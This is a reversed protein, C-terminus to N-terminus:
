RRRQRKMAMLAAAPFLALSAPEPIPVQPAGGPLSWMWNGGTLALDGGDVLGDNNFDCNGWGTTSVMWNGGMLALDGGNVSHDGNADGHTYGLFVLEYVAGGGGGGGFAASSPPLGYTINSTFSSFNGTFYVANPDTSAIVAFVDGEKPRYDNLVQVDLVGGLTSAATTHILSCGDDALEVGVTTSRGSGTNLTLGGVQVFADRGVKLVGTSSSSSALVIAGTATLTGGALNATGKAGTANGLILRNAVTLQGGSSIALEGTSGATSAVYLTGAEQFRYGVTAQGSNIQVQDTLAPQWPVDWNSIVEYRGATTGGADTWVIPRPAPWAALENLYEELDTFGDNDYDANNGAVNPDLNHALEWSNPMGDHDNDAPAPLSNLVPWGGVQSVDTIIGNGYTVTGAAVMGMIRADVADRGPRTAGAEALVRAYAELATDDEALGPAAFPVTARHSPELTGDFQVGGAWNDATIAPYGYVYNGEVYWVGTDPYGDTPPRNDPKVIRYRISGSDTAPGYKYYNDAINVKARGDAGDITRYDWNYLVNNRFDLTMPFSLSPNRGTNCAFLNHHYSCMTGGWTAGFAHSYTNLAESSICYQITVNRTPSVQQYRYISLNEDLGWSVSCHDIIVRGYSSDSGLADDSRASDTAGRRFRMHRVIIDRADLSVTEGAVCIGDGPATQGAITINPNTISLETQLQITGSVRFVVTRAGTGQCAARFSGPGSDALNTVEYVVGGRGGSTIAGFGEAGPFAPVALASSAALLLLALIPACPKLM